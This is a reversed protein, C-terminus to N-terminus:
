TGILFKIQDKGLRQGLAHCGIHRQGSDCYWVDVIDWRAVELEDARDRGLRQKARDDPHFLLPM